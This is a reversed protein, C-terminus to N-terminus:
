PYQLASALEDFYHATARAPGIDIPGAGVYAIRSAATGARSASGCSLNCIPTAAFAVHKGGPRLLRFIRACEMFGPDPRRSERASTSAGNRARAASSQFVEAAVSAM